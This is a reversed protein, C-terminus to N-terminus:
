RGRVAVLFFKGFIQAIMPATGILSGLHEAANRLEAKDCGNTFFVRWFTLGFEGGGRLVNSRFKESRM